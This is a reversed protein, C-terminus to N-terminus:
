GAWRPNLPPTVEYIRYEDLVAVSARTATEQLFRTFAGEVDSGKFFVYTATKNERAEAEYELNRVPELIPTAIVEEATELTLRYSIWYEAYVYRVNRDELEDVLEDVPPPITDYFGINLPEARDVFDDLMTLSVIAALAVVVPAVFTAKPVRTLAYAGLVALLPTLYLLYRPEGIYWTSHPIAFLLPYSALSVLIPALARRHKFAVFILAAGILGYAIKGIAGGSWNLLIIQRLGLAEPLAHSFFAEVREFYSTARTAAPQQLAAWEHRLNYVLWPLAGILATLTALPARRLVRPHRVLLWVVAPAAAFLAVPATWLTLGLVLGLLAVDRTSSRGSDRLSESLRLVLLVAATALVTGTAYFMRAKTSGWVFAPPFVWLLVGALAGTLEGGIRRGIRWALVCAVAYVVIPVLKFIFLNTGFVAFLGATLIAEATGGYTQGWLFTSWEGDLMHRAVLGSVAEDSDIIGLPSSLVWLRLAIGALM